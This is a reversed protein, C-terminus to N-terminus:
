FPGFNDGSRLMNLGSWVGYVAGATRNRSGLAGMITGHTGLRLGAGSIDSLPNEYLAGAATGALAAGVTRRTLMNKRIEYATTRRLGPVGQNALMDSINHGRFYDKGFELSDRGLQKWSTGAGRFMRQSTKARRMIFGNPSNMAGEVGQMKRAATAANIDLPNLRRAGRLMSTGLGSKGFFNAMGKLM